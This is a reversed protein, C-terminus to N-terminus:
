VFLKAAELHNHAIAIEKATKGTATKINVDANALLLLKIIAVSGKESAIHLATENAKDIITNANAGALLLLQVIMDHGCFTATHLPTVDFMNKSELDAGASILLKATNYDGSRASFHLPTHGQNIKQNVDAHYKIFLRVVDTLGNDCAIHISSLGLSHLWTANPNTGMKLLIKIKNIDIPKTIDCAQRLCVTLHKQKFYDKFHDLIDKNLDKQQNFINTACYDCVAHIMSLHAKRQIVHPHIINQASSEKQIYAHVYHQALTDDDMTDFTCAAILNNCITASRDLQDQSSSTEMSYLFSSSIVSLVISIIIKKMCFGHKKIYCLLFIDQALIAFNFYNHLM